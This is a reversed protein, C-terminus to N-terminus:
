QTTTQATNLPKAIKYRVGNRMLTDSNTIVQQEIVLDVPLSGATLTEVNKARSVEKQFFQFYIILVITALSISIGAAFVWKMTNRQRQSPRSRGSKGSKM